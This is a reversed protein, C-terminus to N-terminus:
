PPGSPQTTLCRIRTGACHSRTGGQTKSKELLLLVDWQSLFLLGIPTKSGGKGGFRIIYIIHMKIVRQYDLLHNLTLLVQMKNSFVVMRLLIQHTYLYNHISVYSIFLDISVSATTGMMDSTMVKIIVNRM